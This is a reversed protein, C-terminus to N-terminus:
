CKSLSHVIDNYPIQKKEQSIRPFVPEVCKFKLDRPPNITEYLCSLLANIERSNTSFIQETIRLDFFM